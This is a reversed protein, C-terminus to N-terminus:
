IYKALFNPIKKSFDRVCSLPLGNENRTCTSNLVYDKFFGADHFLTLLVIKPKTKEILAPLRLYQQLIYYGEVGGNLVDFKKGTKQELKREVRESITSSEETGIGFLGSPGLMLIRTEGKDLAKLEPGRLELSNVRIDVEKGVRKAKSNCGARLRHGRISDGEICPFSSESEAVVLLNPRDRRM